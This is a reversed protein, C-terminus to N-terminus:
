QEEEQNPYRAELVGRCFMTNSEVNLRTMRAQRLWARLLGPALPSGDPMVALPLEPATELGIARRKGLYAVADDDSGLDGIRMAVVEQETRGAALLGRVLRELRATYAKVLFLRRLRELGDGDALEGFAEDFSRGRGLAGSIEGDAFHDVLRVDVASVGPVGRVVDRADQAMLFAFNAACWYTPLRLEVDVRGGPRVAWRVFGLEVLSRDLEPDTVTDLAAMVASEVGMAGTAMM